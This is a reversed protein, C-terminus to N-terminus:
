KNHAIFLPTDLEKMLTDAMSTKFWRSLESRRYAGLVVLESEPHDLLHALVQEEINGKVVTYTAKPFHRKIFERMLKNEPVRLTSLFTDKVTFVEVPLDNLNGFLYSLMKIAYLSSPKGDYLLVIKDIPKFKKPVVLVPCQVDGLLDKMFRTPPKETYHTFTEHESIIVLDAFMSEHKLEQLAINKDRHITFPIGAKGCASQFLQVADDRKKKDKADLAKMEAEPNSASVLVRYSDYNRYIFDDLFVGVLSAHALKTLQIAYNMTSASMKFGDFVAVFKKM